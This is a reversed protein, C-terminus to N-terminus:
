IACWWGSPIALFQSYFKDVGPLSPRNGFISYYCNPVHVGSAYYGSKRFSNLAENKDRALIGYVWYNPNIEKRQNMLSYDEQKETLLLDWKSANNRQKGILLEIEDMQLIGIYSNVDSMTAGFGPVTIDCAPDIEGRSDRFFRRDVGSDRVLISKEYLSKDRFVVAGGDITTPLRVAQFSFITVDTNTNGIKKGKYESGFAEIADDIVPIGYEKGLSNIEDIHGPYGCFHNHFIVKTKKTICKKVSDPDLTGTLPDVDAWVVRSGITTLPQNSALCAMPSSIVEDGSKIGLTILAVLVASNFSSVLTVNEIGLYIRLREEFQKGYSGYALAGSHLIADLEPLERPIFPKFLPTISVRPEKVLADAEQLEKTIIM